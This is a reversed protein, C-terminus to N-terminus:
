HNQCGNIVIAIYMIETTVSTVTMGGANILWFETIYFVKKEDAIQNGQSLKDFFFFFFDPLHQNRMGYLQGENNMSEINAFECLESFSIQLGLTLLKPEKMTM